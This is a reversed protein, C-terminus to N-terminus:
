DTEKFAIWDEGLKIRKKDSSMYKDVVSPDSEIELEILHTPDFYRGAKIVNVVTEKGFQDVYDNITYSLTENFIYDDQEDRDMSLFVEDDTTDVFGIHYLDRLEELLYDENIVGKIIEDPSYNAYDFNLKGYCDTVEENLMEKVFIKAEFDGDFLSYSKGNDLELYFGGHFDSDDFKVAKAGKNEPLDFIPAIAIHQELCLEVDEDSTNKMVEELHKALAMKSLVENGKNQLLAKDMVEREDYDGLLSMLESEKSNGKVTAGAKKGCTPGYDAYPSNEPNFSKGCYKCKQKM